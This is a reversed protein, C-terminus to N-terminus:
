TKKPKTKKNIKKRRFHRERLLDLRAGAYRASYKALYSQPNAIYKEENDAVWKEAEALTIFSITFSPVGARRIQVQYTWNKCGKALRYRISAM